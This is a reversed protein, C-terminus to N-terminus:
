SMCATMLHKRSNPTWMVQMMPVELIVAIMVARRLIQLSYCTIHMHAHTHTHVHTHPPPFLSTTHELSGVCVRKVVREIQM